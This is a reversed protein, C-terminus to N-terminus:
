SGLSGEACLTSDAGNYVQFNILALEQNFVSTHKLSALLASNAIIITEYGVLALPIVTKNFWDLLTAQDQNNLKALVVLLCILM